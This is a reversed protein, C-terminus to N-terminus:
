SKIKDYVLQLIELILERRISDSLSRLQSGLMLFFGDIEDQVPPPPVTIPPIPTAFATFADPIKDIASADKTTKKQM